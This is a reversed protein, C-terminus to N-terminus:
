GCLWKSALKEQLRNRKKRLKKLGCLATEVVGSGVMEKLGRRLKAKMPNEILTKMPKRNRM